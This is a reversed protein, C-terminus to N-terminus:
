VNQEEQMTQLDTAYCALLKERVSKESYGSFPCPNEQMKRVDALQSTIMDEIKPYDYKGLKVDRLFDRNELPFVIKGTKLLSRMQELARLAHSIAKWDVGDNNMAAEARKGFREMERDLHAMFIKVPTRATFIKGLIQVGSTIEDEGAHRKCYEDECDKFFDDLFDHLRIVHMDKSAVDDFRSHMWEHAKKLSGLRSGKIGYKHAQHICYGAYATIRDPNIFKEPAEVFMERILPFRSDMYARCRENSYSFLIDTASTEGVPLQSLLFEQLSTLSIDMDDSSNKENHSGTSWEITKRFKGLLLENKSPLFVGRFDDDSSPTETGYLHSGFRTLYLLTADNDRCIEMAKKVALSNTSLLM